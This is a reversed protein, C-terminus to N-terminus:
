RAEYKVRLEIQPAVLRTETRGYRTVILENIIREGDRTPPQWWMVRVWATEADVSGIWTDTLAIPADRRDAGLVLTKTQVHDTAPPADHAIYFAWEGLVRSQSTAQIRVVRTAHAATTPAWGDAASCPRLAALLVIAPAMM